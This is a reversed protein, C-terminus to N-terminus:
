GVRQILHFGYESELVEAIEGVELDFARSLPLFCSNRFLTTLGQHRRGYPEDSFAVAMEAMPEEARARGLLHEAIAKAQEQSRDMDMSALRAGRYSILIHVVDVSVVPQV